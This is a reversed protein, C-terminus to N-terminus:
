PSLQAHFSQLRPADDPRTARLRVRTGDRLEAVQAEPLPDPTM